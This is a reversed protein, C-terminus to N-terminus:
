GHQGFSTRHSSRGCLCGVFISQSLDMEASQRKKPRLIESSRISPFKSYVMDPSHVGAPIVGDLEWVYIPLSIMNTSVIKLMVYVLYVPRLLAMQLEITFLIHAGHM